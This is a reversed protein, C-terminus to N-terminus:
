SAQEVNVECDNVYIDDQAVNDYLLRVVIFRSSFNSKDFYDKANVNVNSGIPQMNGDLVPSNDDVV